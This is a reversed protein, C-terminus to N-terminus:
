SSFGATRFFVNREVCAMRHLVLMFPVWEKRDACRFPDCQADLSFAAKKFVEQSCATLSCCQTLCLSYTNERGVEWYENVYLLGKDKCPNGIPRRNTHSKSKTLPWSNLQSTIIYIWSVSHTFSKYGWHCKHNFHSIFRNWAQSLHRCCTVFHDGNVPVQIEDVVLRECCM